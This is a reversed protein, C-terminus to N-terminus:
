EANGAPTTNEEGSGSTAEEPTVPESEAASSETPPQTTTEPQKTTTAEEPTTDPEISPQTTTEPQTTTTAEETPKVTTEEKTTTERPKKTTTQPIEKKTTSQETQVEPPDEEEAQTQSESDPENNAGISIVDRDLAQVEGEPANPVDLIEERRVAQVIMRMDDRECCTSLTMIYDDATIEGALEYTHRSQKRCNEVYKLFEEDSAFAYTYTDSGEAPTKYTAFVYYKYHKHGIYVDFTPHNKYYEPDENSGYYYWNLSGFMINKVRRGMNHGHIIPNKANLGEEIVADVFISGVSSVRHNALHNLYYDNDAHQLIPNDIYTGDDQRIYGLAESNYERMKDFDWLFQGVGNNNTITMGAADTEQQVSSEESIFMNKLEDYVDMSQQSELYILTLRYASYSFVALAAVMVAYRIIMQRM